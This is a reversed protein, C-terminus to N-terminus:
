AERPDPIYISLEAAWQRVREVYEYFDNVNLKATSGGIVFEGQIEGNGDTVAVRKPPFKAKFIEHVEDPSYGTADSFTGVVASWYYANAQQSRTARRKEVKIAVEGDKFSQLALDFARRNRIRLRGGKVEGTADYEQIAM